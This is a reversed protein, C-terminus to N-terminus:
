DQPAAWRIVIETGNGPQSAISLTAGIDTARERMMKLGYHGPPTHDPDFGRGDDRIRLEVTGLECKLQIDVQNAGSHKAINSLGEQCLRYLAVQVDAPIVIDGDVFVNIPINARGALANGLLRLLDGLEADTLTSPRLEALLLRMDAQAGHTLRRLDKLSQRGEEPDREWLLPLVEAILGASFLSQNVADHLNRALRQREQLAALSQAHEYLEANVMAIAAQNAVILALDADHASFHNRETHGVGIAGIIREKVVLPVWMWSKVGELLLKAQDHLISYLFRTQTDTKQIDAIRSSRQGNFLMMLAEPSQLHIQFPMAQELSQPGRVALATLNSDELKLLGAHTYDIIMRLQDLILDPQLELASALTQSIELLTSQEHNRTEVWQKLLQESHVRQNIDRVVSLLYPRGQDIYVAGSLEVYFQSRDRRMHLQEAVYASQSQVEEVYKTFQHYSDPHIFRTPHQNIFDERVYGYMKCAEPNAEVVQGTKFDYIILGVSATEFIGQYHQEIEKALAPPNQSHNRLANLVAQLDELLCREKSDTPWRDILVTPPSEPNQVTKQLLNSLLVFFDDSPPMTYIKCWAQSDIVFIWENECEHETAPLTYIQTFGTCVGRFFRRFSQQVAHELINTIVSAILREGPILTVAELENRIEGHDM